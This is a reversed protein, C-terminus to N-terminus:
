FFTSEEELCGYFYTKASILAPVFRIPSFVSNAIAYVPM